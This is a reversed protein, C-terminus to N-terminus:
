QQAWRCFSLFYDFVLDTTVLRFAHLPLCQSLIFRLCKNYIVNNAAAFHFLYKVFYFDQSTTKNWDGNWLMIYSARWSGSIWAKKSSGGEEHFEVEHKISVKDSAVLKTLSVAECSDFKKSVETKSWTDPRQHRQLSRIDRHETREM